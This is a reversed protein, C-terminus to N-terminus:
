RGYGQSGVDCDIIINYAHALISLLYLTTAYKYQEACDNTNEWTICFYSFYTKLLEVLHKIHEYTTAADEKSDDTINISCMIGQIIVQNLVMKITTHINTNFIILNRVNM